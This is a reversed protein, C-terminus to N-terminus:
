VHKARQFLTINGLISLNQERIRGATNYWIVGNPKRRLVVVWIENVNCQMCGEVDEHAACYSL